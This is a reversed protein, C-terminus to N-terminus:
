LTTERFLNKSGHQEETALKSLETLYAWHAAFETPFIGIYKVKGKTNIQSQWSKTARHWSAGVLRGDRNSRKNQTNKRTTSERLNEIRNDLRDGNIHDILSPETGNEIFWILRHVLYYNEMIGVYKYGSRKVAGAIKGNLKVHAPHDWHNKWILFGRERDYRFFHLLEEKPPLRKRKTLM